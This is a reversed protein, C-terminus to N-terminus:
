FKLRNIEDKIEVFPANTVKFFGQFPKDIEFILWTSSAIVLNQSMIVIMTFLFNRSNISGTWFCGILIMLIFFLLFAGTLEGKLLNLRQIRLNSLIDISRLLRGYALENTITGSPTYRFTTRLLNRYAADTAPSRKGQELNKFEVNIVSDLYGLTATQVLKSGSAPLSTTANYVNEVEHAEQQTIVLLNDLNHINTAIWFTIFLTSFFLVTQWVVKGIVENHDVQNFFKKATVYGILSVCCCTSYIFIFAAVIPVHFFWNPM